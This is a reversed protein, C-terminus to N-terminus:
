CCLCLGTSWLSCFTSCVWQVNFGLIIKNPYPILIKQSVAPPGVNVCPQLHLNHEASIPRKIIKKIIKPAM